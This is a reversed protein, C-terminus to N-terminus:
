NAIKFQSSTVRIDPLMVFESSTYCYFSMNVCVSSM